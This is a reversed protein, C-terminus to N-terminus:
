VVFHYSVKSFSSQWRAGFFIILIFLYIFVYHTVEQTNLVGTRLSDVAGVCM